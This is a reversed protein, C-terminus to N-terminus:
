DAMKEMVFFSNNRFIEVYKQEKIYKMIVEEKETTIDVVDESNNEENKCGFILIPYDTMSAIDDNLEKLSYSELDPWSTSIASPMQMAYSIMPINGYFIAKKENYGKGYIFRSLEEIDYANSKSTRINKLVPNDKIVAFDGELFSEERFIYDMSFFLGQISAFIVTLFITIRVPLAKNHEYKIKSLERLNIKGLSVLILYVAVLFLNNIITFSGQNSGLPTILIIMFVTFSILRDQSQIKKNLVSYISYGLAVVILFIGWSQISFLDSFNLNFGYLKLIVLYVFIFGPIQIALWLKATKEKSIKKYVMFDAVAYIFIILLWKSFYFYDHFAKFAMDAIGYGEASGSVGMLSNIMTMYAGKSVTLEISLIGILFTAFYSIICTLCQKLINKKYIYGYLFIVLILATDVINPFRIFAALSLVVGAFILFKQKEELLGKLLLIAAIDLLYYSMYQYICTKPAWSFVVGAFMGIYVLYWSFYKRLMFYITLVMVGSLATCYAYMGIITHGWPLFTFVKGIANSLFTSACWMVNIHPFAEFNTLGYGTDTLDVGTTVHIFPLFFLVLLLVIETLRNTNQRNSNQVSKTKM